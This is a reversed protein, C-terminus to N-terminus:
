AALAERIRNVARVSLGFKGHLANAITPQSIGALRGLQKQSYGKCRRLHEIELAVSQPIHGGGFNRFRAVPRGMDPFLLLQGSPQLATLQVQTQSICQKKRSSTAPARMANRKQWPLILKESLAEAELAYSLRVRDGIGETKGTTTRRTSLHLRLAHNAESTREKILYAEVKKRDRVNEGVTQIAKDGTLYDLFASKLSHLIKNNGLFAINFHLSGEMEIVKLWFQPIGHRKQYKVLFSCFRECTKHRDGLPQNFLEDGLVAYCVIANKQRQCEWLIKLGAGVRKCEDASMGNKHRATTSRLPERTPRYLVIHASTGRQSADPKTVYQNSLPIKELDGKKREIKTM